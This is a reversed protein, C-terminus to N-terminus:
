RIKSIIPWKIDEYNFKGTFSYLQPPLDLRLIRFLISYSNLLIKFSRSAEYLNMFDMFKTFYDWSALVNDLRLERAANFLHRQGMLAPGGVFVGIISNNYIVPSGSMGSSTSCTIELLSEAWILEGISCAISYPDHFIEAFKRTTEKLDNTFPYVYMQKVLAGSPYGAVIGDSGTILSKEKCVSMEYILTTSNKFLLFLLAFDGEGVCYSEGNSDIADGFFKQNYTKILFLDDIGFHGGMQCTNFIDITNMQLADSVVRSATVVITSEYLIYSSIFVLHNLKKLVFGIGRDNINIIFCHPIRVEDSKKEIKNLYGLVYTNKERLAFEGIYRSTTKDIFICM